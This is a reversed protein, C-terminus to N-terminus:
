SILEKGETKLKTLNTAIVASHQPKLSIYWKFQFFAYRIRLNPITKKGMLVTKAAAAETCGSAVCHKWSELM